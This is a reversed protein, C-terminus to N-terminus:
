SNPSHPGRPVSQVDPESVLISVQCFSEKLSLRLTLTEKALRAAALALRAGMPAM